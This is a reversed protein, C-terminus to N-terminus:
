ILLGRAAQHNTKVILARFFDRTVIHHFSTKKKIDVCYLVPPAESLVTFFDEKKKMGDLVQCVTVSLILLFRV